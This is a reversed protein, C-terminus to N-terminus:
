GERDPPPTRVPTFQLLPQPGSSDRVAALEVAQGVQVADTDTGVINTMLRPGEDLEVIALVYPVEDRWAAHGPMHVVTYTWVTGRGSAAEWELEQSWCTACLSRPYHQLHGVPRCRQLLLTGEAAAEWYPATTQVSIFGPRPLKATESMM